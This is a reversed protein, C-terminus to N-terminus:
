LQIKKSPAPYEFVQVFINVVVVDRESPSSCHLPSKCEKEETRVHGIHDRVNACFFVLISKTIVKGKLQKNM